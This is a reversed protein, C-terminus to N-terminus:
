NTKIIRETRVGESTVARVVYVGSPLHGLELTYSSAGLADVAMLRVGSLSYLTITGLRDASLSLSQVVPNPYLRLQPVSPSQLATPATAKYYIYEPMDTPSGILITEGDARYEVRMRYYHDSELGLDQLKFAILNDKSGSSYGQRVQNYTSHGVEIRRDTGVEELVVYLDGTFTASANNRVVASFSLARELDEETFHYSELTEEDELISLSRLELQVPANQPDQVVITYPELDSEIARTSSANTADDYEKLIFSVTYTGAPLVKTSASGFSLTAEFTGHPYYQPAVTYITERIKGDASTFVAGLEASNATIFSSPNEIVIRMSTQRGSWAPASLEPHEKLRLVLKGEELVEVATGSIRIRIMPSAEMDQWVGASRANYQAKLIYVGDALSSLSINDEFPYIYRRGAGLARSVPITHAIVRDIADQGGEAYVGVGFQGYFDVTSTNGVGALSVRFLSKSRRTPDVTFSTNLGLRMGGALDAYPNDVGPRRPMIMVIEQDSSFHGGGGGIGLVQPNMFDLNYYGNPGAGGWGWNAHLYGNADYGDIVWAHGGAAGAGAMLVPRRSDLEGRITKAFQDGSTNRRRYYLAHYDFHDGFATASASTYAGSETPTFMMNVSVAADYMLRAVATAEADSWGKAQTSPDVTYTERMNTWDYVSTSFDVSLEGYIGSRYPPTYANRGQGRAPWKHYYMMQAMATALCGTPARNALVNVKPALDNYPTSQNWLSTLLPEVIPQAGRIPYSLMASRLGHGTTEGGARLRDVRQRHLELLRALQEPLSDLQLRGSDSYGIVPSLADDGSIIVFGERDSDNFVYYPALTDGQATAGLARLETSRDLRVFGSALQAAQRLGVPDASLTQGMGLALTLAYIWQRMDQLKKM